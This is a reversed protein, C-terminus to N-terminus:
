SKLPKLIIESSIGHFVLFRVGNNECTNVIIQLGQRSLRQEYLQAKHLVIKM